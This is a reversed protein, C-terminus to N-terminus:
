SPFFANDSQDDYKAANGKAEDYVEVRSFSRFVSKQDLWRRGVTSVQIKWHDQPVTIFLM